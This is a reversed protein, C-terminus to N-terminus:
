CSRTALTSANQRALRIQASVQPHNRRDLSLIDTDIIYLTM